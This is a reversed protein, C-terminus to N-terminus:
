LVPRSKRLGDGTVLELMPQIDFQIELGFSPFETQFVIAKELRPNEVEPLLNM